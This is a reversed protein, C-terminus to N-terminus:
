PIQDVVHHCSRDVTNKTKMLSVLIIPPLPPLLEGTCRVEDVATNAVVEHYSGYISRTCRRRDNAIPSLKLSPRWFRMAWRGARHSSWLNVVSTYFPCSSLEKSCADSLKFWFVPPSVTFCDGNGAWALYIVGDVTCSRFCTPMNVAQNQAYVHM